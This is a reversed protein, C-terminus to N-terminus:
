ETEAYADPGTQLLHKLRELGDILSDFPPAGIALRVANPAHGPLVTFVSAPTVAVGHRSALATFAESRWPEPLVLWVHYSQPDRKLDYGALIEGTRQQRLRADARKDREITAATGDAMLQTGAALGYGSASWGGSRAIGALKDRLALPAAIFGLSLGSAIRKSLSDVVFCHDPALAALPADDSLFGYVHDEIIPVGTEVAFAALEAKRAASLTVGLPNHMVPQVYVASIAHGEHAKKLAAVVMGDRDIPIPVLVIGLRKALSKVTSYTVAEVALRGGHAVLASLAAAIGQKGGATFVINGPGPRFAGCTLHRATVARAEALQGSTPPRLALDLGHAHLDALSATIRASQDPLMPFNFDLDIRTEHVEMESSVRQDAQRRAVFTGRGVEGVVLGRRLLEGYVRAATSVAIGRAYAFTRQPPLRAGPALVGSSIDRALTDAIALYDTAAASSARATSSHVSRATM